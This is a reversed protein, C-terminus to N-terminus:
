IRSDAQKTGTVSWQDSAMSWESEIVEMMGPMLSDKSFTAAALRNASSLRRGNIRRSADLIYDTLKEIDGHRANCVLSQDELKSIIDVIHGAPPGVYLVPSGIELINYIKCPHVIGTFADGMVVAHLDAASLSRALENLAQYPLCLVNDLKNTQAYAKVKDHESGGGVFCFAINQHEALKRAAGLLTDL